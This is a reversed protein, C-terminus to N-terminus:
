LISMIMVLDYARNKIVIETVGDVDAKSETEKVAYSVFEKIAKHLKPTSVGFHPYILEMYARKLSALKRVGYKTELKQYTTYNNEAV